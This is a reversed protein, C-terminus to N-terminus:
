YLSLLYKLNQRIFQEAMSSGPCTLQEANIWTYCNKQSAACRLDKGLYKGLSRPIAMDESPVYYYNHYDTYHLKVQEHEKPFSVTLREGKSCLSIEETRVEFSVAPVHKTRVHFELTNETDTVEDVELYEKGLNLISVLGALCVMGTLDEANHGFVCDLYKEQGTKLWSLMATTCVRGGPWTRYPPICRNDMAKQTDHERLFEEFSTQKLDSLGLLKGVPRLLKHLDVSQFEELRTLSGACEAYLSCRFRLFPLDFRDGFFHILAGSDQIRDFFWSILEKEDSESSLAAQHLTLCGNDSTIIGVMCIMAKEKSFGTTELDVFICDEPQRQIFETLVSVYDNMFRCDRLVTDRTILM